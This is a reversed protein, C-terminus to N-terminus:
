TLQPALAPAGARVTSAGRQMLKSFAAFTGLAALSGVIGDSAYHWGLAISLGTIVAWGIIAVPLWRRAFLRFDARALLPDAWFPVYHNLLTKVWMFSVMNLGALLMILTTATIRRRETMLFRRLSQSPAPDRTLAARGFGYLCAILAAVALWPPLVRLAPLLGGSNPILLLATVVAIGTVAISPVLWAQAQKM